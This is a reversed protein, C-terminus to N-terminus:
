VLSLSDKSNTGVVGGKRLEERIRNQELAQLERREAIRRRQIWEEKDRMERRTLRAREEASPEWKSKLIRRVAEPSIRFKAALVPTTFTQPDHMNLVRLGDM